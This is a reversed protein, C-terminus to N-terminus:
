PIPNTKTITGAAYMTSDIMEGCEPCQTREAALTGRLDYGCHLCNMSRPLAPLRRIASWASCSVSDLSRTFVFVFPSLFAGFILVGMPHPGHNPVVHGIFSYSVVASLGLSIGVTFILQQYFRHKHRDDFLSFFIPTFLFLYPVVFELVPDGPPFGRQTSVAHSVLWFPAAILLIMVYGAASIRPLTVRMTQDRCLCTSAVFKSRNM